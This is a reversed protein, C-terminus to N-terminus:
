NRIGNTVESLHNNRAWDIILEAHQPANVLTINHIVPVPFQLPETEVFKEVITEKQLSAAVGLTTVGTILSAIAGGLLDEVAIGRKISAAAGLFSSFSVTGAIAGITLASKLQNKM